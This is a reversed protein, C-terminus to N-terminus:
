SGIIKKMKNKTYKGIFKAIKIFKNKRNLGINQIHYKYAFNKVKLGHHKFLESFVKGKVKITEALVGDFDFIIIKSNDKKYEKSKKM